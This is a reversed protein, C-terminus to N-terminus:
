KARDSPPRAMSAQPATQVSRFLIKMATAQAGMCFNAESHSLEIFELALKGRLTQVECSLHFIEQSRNILQVMYKQHDLPHRLLLSNIHLWTVEGSRQTAEGHKGTSRDPHEQVTNKHSTAQAGMRFNAESHSLEIFELALKGHLTQVKRSLLFIEEAQAATLGSTILVSGVQVNMLQGSSQVARCASSPTVLGM